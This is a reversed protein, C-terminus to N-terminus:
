LKSDDIQYFTLTFYNAGFTDYLEENLQEISKLLAM